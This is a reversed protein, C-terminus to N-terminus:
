AVPDHQESGTCGGGPRLPQRRDVSARRPPLRHIGRRRTGVMAPERIRGPRAGNNRRRCPLRMGPCTGDAEVVHVDGTTLAGCGRRDRVQSLIWHSPRTMGLASSMVVSPPQTTGNAPQRSGVPSRADSGQGSPDMSSRGLPAPKRRGGGGGRPVERLVGRCGRRRAKSESGSRGELAGALARLM